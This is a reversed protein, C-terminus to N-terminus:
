PYANYCNTWVRGDEIERGFSYATNIDRTWVGSGLGYLTDNAIELAEENTKFTTVAVVPGFIKEQLIRMTNHGKFVTPPVYYGNEFGEGVNNKEGGILCEAGEQKGIDLYSLI